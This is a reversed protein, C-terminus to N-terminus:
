KMEGGLIITNRQMMQDLEIASMPRSEEKKTLFPEKPYKDPSNFAIAIYKGLNFNHADIEKIRLEEKQKYM